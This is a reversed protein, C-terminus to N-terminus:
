AYRRLIDELRKNMDAVSRTGPRARSALQIAPSLRQQRVATRSALEPPRAAVPSPTPRMSGPRQWVQGASPSSGQWQGAPMLEQGTRSLIPKALMFRRAIPKAPTIGRGPRKQAKAAKAAAQRTKVRELGRQQAEQQPRQRQEWEGIAAQQAQAQSGSFVPGIHPFAGYPSRRWAM